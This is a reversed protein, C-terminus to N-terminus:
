QGPVGFIKMQPFRTHILDCVKQIVANVVQMTSMACLDKEPCRSAHCPTKVSVPRPTRLVQSHMLLV